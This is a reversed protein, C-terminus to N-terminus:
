VQNMQVPVEHKEEEASMLERKCKFCLCDVTTCRSRRINWFIAHILAIGVGALSVIDCVSEIIFGM